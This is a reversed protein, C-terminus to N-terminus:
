GVPPSTSSDAATSRCRNCSARSVNSGPRVSGADSVHHQDPVAQAPQNGLQLDGARVIQQPAFHGILWEVCQASRRFQLRAERALEEELRHRHDLPDNEDASGMM